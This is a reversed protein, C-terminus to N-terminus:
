DEKAKPPAVKKVVLVREIIQPTTPVHGRPDNPDMRLFFENGTRVIRDIVEEGEVLKGFGTYLGDLSPYRAHMLFFESSASNIDNGLRAMSLVGRVHKRDNFEAQVTRPAKTGPKPGGGQIMFGPIVRHFKSGDYFGTYALDLFNRVHQPAVEPWLEIWMDGQNTRMIVQYDELQKAPLDMFEIAKEAHEFYLVQQGESGAVGHYTLRFARHDWAELAQVAPAIDLTTEVTQGPELAVDKKGTRSGLSRGDVSFAAASLAWPELEVPKDGTVVLQLTVKLPEGDVFYRSVKWTAQVVPEDGSRGMAQDTHMALFVGAVLVWMGRLLASM